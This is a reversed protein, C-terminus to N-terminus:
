KTISYIPYLATFLRHWGIKYLQLFFFDKFYFQQLWWGNMTKISETLNGQLSALLMRDWWCCSRGGVRKISTFITPSTIRRPKCNLKGTRQDWALSFIIFEKFYFSINECNYVFLNWLNTANTCRNWGRSWFVLLNYRGDLFNSLYDKYPQKVWLLYAAFTPLGQTGKMRNSFCIASIQNWSFNKKKKQFLANWVSKILNQNTLACCM